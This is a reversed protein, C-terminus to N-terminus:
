LPRTAYLAACLLPFTAGADRRRVPLWLARGKAPSLRLLLATGLDLMIDVRQLDVNGRGLDISWATGSWNLNAAGQSLVRMAVSFGAIAAVAAVLAAVPATANVRWAVWAALAALALGYLTAQIM